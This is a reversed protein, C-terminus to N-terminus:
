ETADELRQEMAQLYGAVAETDPDDSDLQVQIQECGHRLYARLDGEPLKNTTVQRATDVVDAITETDDDANADQAEDLLQSLVAEVDAPPDASM